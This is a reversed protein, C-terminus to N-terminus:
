TSCPIPEESDHYIATLEVVLVECLVVAQAMPSLLVFYSASLRRDAGERGGSPKSAVRFGGAM